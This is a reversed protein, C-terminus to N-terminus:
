DGKRDDTRSRDKNKRSRASIRWVLLAVAIVTVFTLSEGIWVVTQVHEREPMNLQAQATGALFATGSLALLFSACCRLITQM